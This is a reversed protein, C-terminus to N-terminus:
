AGTDVLFHTNTAEDLVHLHPKTNLSTSLSDLERTRTVPVKLTLGKQSHGLSKNIRLGEVLKSTERTRPDQLRQQDQPRQWDQPRGPVRNNASQQRPVLVPTSIAGDKVVHEPHFPM